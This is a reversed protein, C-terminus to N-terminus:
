MSALGARPRSSRLGQDHYMAADRRLRARAGARFRHGRTDSRTRRRGGGASGRDGARHRRTGRSRTAAKAPMRTSAACPSAHRPSASAAAPEADVIALTERVADRAIAAPVEALAPHTTVLAVRLPADNEGGVLMMVVRPTGTREAFFETHGTFAPGADSRARRCPDTVLAAPVGEACADRARRLV